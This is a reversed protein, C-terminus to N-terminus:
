TPYEQIPSQQVKRSCCLYNNIELLINSVTQFLLNIKCPAELPLQSRLGIRCISTLEKEIKKKFDASDNMTAFSFLEGFLSLLTIVSVLYNEKM